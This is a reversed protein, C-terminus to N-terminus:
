LIRSHEGKGLEWTFLGNMEMRNRHDVDDDSLHLKEKVIHSVEIFCWIEYLTAIDKTQLRYLGDYLSYGRRLLNWTRYVQSYGSARQLVLSEQTMGKFRRVTRFFPNRFLHQLTHLTKNMEEKKTVSVANIEEIRRKLSDFKSLIQAM